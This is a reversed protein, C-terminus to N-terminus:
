GGGLDLTVNGGGASNVSMVGYCVANAVTDPFAHPIAKCICAQQRLRDGLVLRGIAVGRVQSWGGASNAAQHQAPRVFAAAIGLFHRTKASPSTSEVQVKDRVQRAEGGHHSCVNGGVIAITNRIAGNASEELADEGVTARGVRGADACQAQHM